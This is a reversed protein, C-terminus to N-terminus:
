QPRTSTLHFEEVYGEQGSGDRVKWWWRGIGTAPDLVDFEAIGIIQVETGHNVPRSQEGNWHATTQLYVLSNDSPRSDIFLEQGVSYAAPPVVNPPIVIPQQGQTDPAGLPIPPSANPNNTGLDSGLVWGSGPIIYYYTEAGSSVSHILDTPHRYITVPTGRSVTNGEGGGVSFLALTDRQIYLQQGVAYNSSTSPPPNQAVTTATQNAVVAEATQIFQQTLALVAETQLVPVLTPTETPTITNTPTVTAASATLESAVRQTAAL